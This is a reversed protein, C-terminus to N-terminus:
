KNSQLWESRAAFAHLIFFGILFVIAVNRFKWYIYMCKWFQKFLLDQGISKVITEKKKKQRATHFSRFSFPPFFSNSKGSDVFFFQVDVAVLFVFSGNSSVTRCFFLVFCFKELGKGELILSSSGIERGFFGKVREREGEREHRKNTRTGGITSSSFNKACPDLRNTEM